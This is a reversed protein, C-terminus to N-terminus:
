HASKAGNKLTIKVVTGEEVKSNAPPDQSVVTGTGDISVNLNLSHLANQAQASTKLNLDPVTVSTRATNTNDYLMIISDKSLSVGPKPVQDSVTTENKNQSTVSKVKFGANTLVKEAETFTKNRVDSIQVLNSSNTDTSESPVGMIPLIETLMQSAVPAAVQGGQQGKNLGYFCVLLVIQTDEVPSIAVFSAVYGESEKGDPPESTGTKGGVSYGTVAGRYGTGDVVVSEMLEKMTNATEKSLVQRVQTPEISTVAGTDTNTIKDVIMPKMLIGDNAIASIATIMQLPTINLRQGFSMTALEVDAVSSEKTFLSNSEGYLNSGTTDFLGYARYYNYLTKVGIRKGLQMLAPNCSKELAKRLSLSGHPTTSWCSIKKDAVQEYGNCVFDGEVDPTTIHEELAVSATILKFVSGPEYLDSVCKNRWMSHLANSKDESSLSDYTSAISSNPTFPTNLNYNPYDAMALIKGTKPNMAICTGGSKANLNVCAQSLYKEVITQINYDITLTLDSGNEASIYREEANPIEEQDSGKSSVIKGPTGQLVSNYTSELGVIGSNDTGCFGLVNSLVTDHPYYRKSDEDINIGVSIKNEKMWKQLTEVKDQEIKKAITEVQSNSKVKELTENYDLEFIESLGKAVKEKLENTKEDTSDTIKQPNITITDVAVSSALTKGTSDYINGRKPSIIQNIAQQSYAKEKLYAGDVFQIVALRTVLLVFIIITILFITKLKKTHIFNQSTFEENINLIKKNSKDKKNKKMNLIMGEM